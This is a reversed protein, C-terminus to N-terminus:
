LTHCILALISYIERPLTQGCRNLLVQSLCKVPCSLILNKLANSHNTGNSMM